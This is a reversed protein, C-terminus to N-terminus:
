LPENAHAETGDCHPRQMAAGSTLESRVLQAHDTVDCSSGADSAEAGRGSSPTRNALSVPARALVVRSMVDVNGRAFRATSIKYRDVTAHARHVRRRPVKACVFVSCARPLM